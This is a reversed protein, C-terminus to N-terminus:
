CREAILVVWTTSSQAGTWGGGTQWDSSPETRLQLPVQDSAPDAWVDVSKDYAVTRAHARTASPTQSGAEAKKWLNERAIYSESDQGVQSVDKTVGRRLYSTLERTWSLV